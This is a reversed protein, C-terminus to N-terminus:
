ECQNVTSVYRLALRCSYKDSVRFERLNMESIADAVEDESSFQIWLFRDFNNPPYYSADSTYYDLVIFDSFFEMIKQIPM